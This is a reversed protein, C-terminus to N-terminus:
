SLPVHLKRISLGPTVVNRAYNDKLDWTPMGSIQMGSFSTDM